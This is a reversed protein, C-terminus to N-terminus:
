ATVARAHGVGKRGQAPHRLRIDLYHWCGVIKRKNLGIPKSLLKGFQVIHMPEEGPMFGRRSTDKKWTTYIFYLSSSQVREGQAPEVQDLLFARLELIDRRTRDTVGPPVPAPLAPPNNAGTTPAPSQAM